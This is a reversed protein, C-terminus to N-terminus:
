KIIFKNIYNEVFLVKINKQNFTEILQPYFNDWFIIKEELVNDDQRNRNPLDKKNKMLKMILILSDPFKNLIFNLQKENKAPNDILFRKNININSIAKEFLNLDVAFEPNGVNDRLWQGISFHNIEIIKKLEECFFSKGSYPKGFLLINKNNNSIKDLNEIM